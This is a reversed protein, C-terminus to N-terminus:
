RLVELSRIRCGCEAHLGAHYSCVPLPGPSVRGPLGVCEHTATRGCRHRLDPQWEWCKPTKPPPTPDM